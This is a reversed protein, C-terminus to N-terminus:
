DASSSHYLDLAGREIAEATHNMWLQRINLQELMGTVIQTSSSCTYGASYFYTKWSVEEDNVDLDSTTEGDDGGAMDNHAHDGAISMLPSCYVTGSTLGATVMRDRVNNKYNDEMDVTGVFYNANIEQLATELQTYRINATYTDYSNPNGHGMFAVVNDAAEEEFDDNLASALNDVDTSDNAMLPYGLYLNVSSLYDDDLDGDSNNAFDKMYGIVRTYEEGPIVQLSQVVIDSYEVDAFANLWYPPAYFNRSDTNEGAASRNICIASSFSLYVDYEPFAEEYSVVTSDFANFAQEWTSGFAVLLIAKTNKTSSQTSEVTSNVAEQYRDYNSQADDDDDKSCTSFTVVAMFALMFLKIKSM